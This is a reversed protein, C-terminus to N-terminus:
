LRLNTVNGTLSHSCIFVKAILTHLARQNTATDKATVMKFM